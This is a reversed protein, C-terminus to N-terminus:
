SSRPHFKIYNDRLNKINLHTYIETTAVNSHGLLEQVERIGAGEQLLHSAFSHRLSHMSLNKEIGAKSLYKKFIRGFYRVSLKEGFRNLFLHNDKSDERIKLYQELWYLATHNLYVIRQKNGKGTVLIEREPLNLDQIKINEIESVRCGTSYALEIMARNRLSFNDYPKMVEFLKEIENISLYSYFRHAKRPANISQSLIKDILNDDELFKFFNKYSSYKRIITQNSYHRNDIFKLYERFAGLNLQNTKSINKCKLFNLFPLIDATYSKITKPSLNKVFRLTRIYLDFSKNLYM